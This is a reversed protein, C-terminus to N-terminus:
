FSSNLGGRRAREGTRWDAAHSACERATTGIGIDKYSFYQAAAEEKTLEEANAVWCACMIALNMVGMSLYRM